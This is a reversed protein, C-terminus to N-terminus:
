TNKYAALLENAREVQSSPRAFESAGDVFRELIEYEDETRIVGAKLVKQVIKNTGNVEELTKGFKKRLEADLQGREPAPLATSWECLDRLLTKLGKINNRDRTAAVVKGMEVLVQSPNTAQFFEVVTLCIAALEEVERSKPSKQAM